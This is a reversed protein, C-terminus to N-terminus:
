QKRFFRPIGQGIRGALQSKCALGFLRLVTWVLFPRHTSPFWRVSFLLRLTSFFCASSYLASSHVADLVDEKISAPGGRPHAELARPFVPLVVLYIVFPHFDAVLLQQSSFRKVARPPSRLRVRFEVFARVEERCRVPGVPRQCPVVEWLAAADCVPTM